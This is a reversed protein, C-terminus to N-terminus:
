SQAPLDGVIHSVNEHDFIVPVGGPAVFGATGDRIALAESHDVEFQEGDVLVVTFPRFPKCQKMARITEDFVGPDMTTKM